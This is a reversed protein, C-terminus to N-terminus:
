ESKKYARFSATAEPNTTELLELLKIKIDSSNVVGDAVAAQAWTEIQGAISEAEESSAGSKVLGNIIKSRNFAELQGDKKRIKIEMKREGGKKKWQVLNILLIFFTL